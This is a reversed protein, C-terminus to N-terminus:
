MNIIFITCTCTFLVAGFFGFFYLFFMVGLCVYLSDIVFDVSARCLVSIVTQNSKVHLLM